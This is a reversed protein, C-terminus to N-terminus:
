LCSDGGRAIETVAGTSNDVPIQGMATLRTALAMSAISILTLLVGLLLRGWNSRFLTRM